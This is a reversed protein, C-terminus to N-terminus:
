EDGTPPGRLAVHRRTRLISVMGLLALASLAILGGTVLTWMEDGANPGELAPAAAPTATPTPTRIFGGIFGSTGPSSSVVPTPTASPVPTPPLPTATIPPPTPLPTPAPTPTAAPTPAITPRPTAGSTVTVTPGVLTDDNGQAVANFTVPWSGVPLSTSGGFTGNSSSGAIVSMPATRGAASATVTAASGQYQVTFTFTTAPTGSTPNVTPNSLTNRAGQVPAPAALVFLLTVALVPAGLWRRTM